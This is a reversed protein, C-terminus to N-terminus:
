ICIFQLYVSWVVFVTLRYLEKAKSDNGEEKEGEKREKKEWKM